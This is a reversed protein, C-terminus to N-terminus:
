RASSRRRARWKSSRSWRSSTRSTSSRRAARRRHPDLRHAPHRRRRVRAIRAGPVPRLHLGQAAARAPRRPLLRRPQRPLGLPLRDLGPLVEVGHPDLDGAAGGITYTARSRATSSRRSSGARRRRRRRSRPSSSSASAAPARAARAKSSRACWAGSRRARHSGPAAQARRAAGAAQAAEVEVRKDAVISTSSADYRERMSSPQARGNAPRSSHKSSRQQAAGSDISKAALTSAAERPRGRQGLRRPRRRRQDARLRAAPGPAGDLVCGCSPPTRNPRAAACTRSTTAVAPRRRGAHDTYTRVAGDILERCPRRGASASRTSAM